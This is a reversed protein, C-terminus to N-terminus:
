YLFIYLLPERSLPPPVQEQVPPLARAAAQGHRPAPPLLLHLVAPVEGRAREGGGDVDEAREAPHREVM